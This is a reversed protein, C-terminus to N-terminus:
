SGAQMETQRNKADIQVILSKGNELHQRLLSEALEGNRDWLAKMIAHHEDLSRRLAEEDYSRMVGTIVAAPTVQQILRDLLSSGAIANIAQHFQFNVRGLEELDGASCLQEMRKVFVDLERLQLLTVREAAMRAALGELAQRILYITLVEEFLDFVVFGRRPESKLVGDSELRRLAERVPTRSVGMDDAVEQEVLRTGPALEGSVVRAYLTRYVVDARREGTTDTASPVPDSTTSM